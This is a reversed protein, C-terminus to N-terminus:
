RFNPEPFPQRYRRDTGNGSQAARYGEYYGRRFEAESWRDYRSTYQRYNPWIGQFYDRQGLRYAEDFDSRRGYQRRDVGVTISSIEGALGGRGRGIQGLDPIDSDVYFSAGTFGADVYITATTNGFVRISMARDNWGDRVGRLESVAQGPGFCVSRGRYYPQDYLCVGNGQALASAAFVTMLALLLLLRNPRSPNISNLVKM